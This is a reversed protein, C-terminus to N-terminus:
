SVNSRFNNTNHPELGSDSITAADAAKFMRPSSTASYSSVHAHNEIIKPPIYSLKIRIAAEYSPLVAKLYRVYTRTWEKSREERLEALEKTALFEGFELKEPLVELLRLKDSQEQTLPDENAVHGGLFALYSTMFRLLSYEALAQLENDPHVLLKTYAKSYDKILDNIEGEHLKLLDDISQKSFNDLMEIEEVQNSETTPAEDLCATEIFSRQEHEIPMATPLSPNLEPYLDKFPFMRAQLVNQKEMKIDNNYFKDISDEIDRYLDIIQKKLQETLYYTYNKSLQKSTEDLSPFIAVREIHERLVEMKKDVIIQQAKILSSRFNQLIQAKNSFNFWIKSLERNTNLLSENIEDELIYLQVLQADENLDYSNEPTQRKLESLSKLKALLVANRRPFEYSFSKIGFLWQLWGMVTSIFPALEAPVVTVELDDRALTVFAFNNESNNDNSSKASSLSRWGFSDIKEHIEPIDYQRISAELEFLLDESVIRNINSPLPIKQNSALFKNIEIIYDRLNDVYSLDIGHSNATQLRDLIARVISIGFQDLHEHVRKLYRITNNYVKTRTTMLEEPLESALDDKHRAEIKGTLKRLYAHYNEIQPLYNNALTVLVENPSQLFQGQALIENRIAKLRLRTSTNIDKRSDLTSWLPLATLKEVLEKREKYEQYQASNFKLTKVFSNIIRVSESQNGSIAARDSKAKIREFQKKLEKQSIENTKITTSALAEASEIFAVVNRLDDDINAAVKSQEVEDLKLDEFQFLM